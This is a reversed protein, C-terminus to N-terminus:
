LTEDDALRRLGPREALALVRVLGAAGFESRQVSCARCLVQCLQMQSARRQPSILDEAYRFAASSSELVVNM